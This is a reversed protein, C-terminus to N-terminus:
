PRQEEGETYNEDNIPYRQAAPLSPVTGYAFWEYFFDRLSGGYIEEALYMFDNGTAIQFYFTQFYQRILDWFMEEGMRDSLANFMLMGKIHHTQYYDHWTEFVWLGHSLYLDDRTAISNYVGNIYSRFAAPRTYFFRTTLYRILGKDLWSEVTSDSGVVNFFWQHGLAQALAMHNPERLANTDIFVMNSFVMVDRFIDTEVIRIHDFPYHGVRYSFYDMSVRAIDLIIDVPLDDSFYYLHIDGSETSIWEQRFYPSIAFAFDRANYAIFTTVRTDADEVPIEGTKVGTGAVIYDAPTIIEVSFNAMELIFPDGAPYYGPTLWGNEWVALMPLFMGFWIAQSNAGIRHAIMPIYANYQLVLQVTVDPALPASLHLYLVTGDLVFDLDENNMTVYQIHMYGYDRGHSFIFREFELFSHRVNEDFANLPVRLVIEYLDDGTRNTFTIRSMGSSVTRTAPDITLSVDYYDFGPIEVQTHAPEPTVYGNENESNYPEPTHAPYEEPLQGRGCAAAFLLFLLCVILIKM